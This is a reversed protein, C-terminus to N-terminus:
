ARNKEIDIITRSNMRDSYNLVYQMIQSGMKYLLSPTLFNANACIWKEHNCQLSYIISMGGTDGNGTINGQTKPDATDIQVGNTYMYKNSRWGLSRNCEVCGGFGGGYIFTQYSSITTTDYLFALNLERSDSAYVKNIRLTSVQGATTPVTLTDLLTNSILDYVRVTVNGTFNVLLSIESVAMKLFTTENFLRTQIGKSVGNQGQVLSMNDAFFGLRSGDVISKPNFKGSFHGYVDNTMRSVALSLQSAIFSDADLSDANVIDEILDRSIGIQNLSLAGSQLTPTSCGGELYILNDFCTAM